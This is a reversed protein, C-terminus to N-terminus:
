YIHEEDQVEGSHLINNLFNKPTGFNCGILKRCEPCGKIESNVERNLYPIRQTHADIYICRDYVPQESLVSFYASRLNLHFRFLWLKHLFKMFYSFL